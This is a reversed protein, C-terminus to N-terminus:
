NNIIQRSGIYGKYYAPHSRRFRKNVNDLNKLLPTLEKFLEDLGQTAISSAIQYERTKGRSELWENFSHKVDEIQGKSCGYEIANEVNDELVSIVNKVKIEFNENALTFYDSYSNTTKALLEANNTDSAYAELIDDQVDMKLAVDRKLERVSKSIYLKAAEQDDAKSKIQQIIQTLKNKYRVIAPITSWISANADLHNLTAMCMELRNIQDRTM